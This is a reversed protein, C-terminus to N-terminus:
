GCGHPYVAGRQVARADGLVCGFSVGSFCRADAEHESNVEFLAYTGGKAGFSLLAVCSEFFFALVM